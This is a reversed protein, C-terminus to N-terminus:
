PTAGKNNPSTILRAASRCRSHRHAVDCRYGMVPIAARHCCPQRPGGLQAASAQHWFDAVLVAHLAVALGPQGAALCQGFRAKPSGRPENRQSRM